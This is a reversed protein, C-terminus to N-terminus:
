YFNAEFRIGRLVHKIKEEIDDLEADNVTRVTTDYEDHDYESQHDSIKEDIMDNFEDKIESMKEDVMETITDKLEELDPTPMDAMREKFRKDVMAEIHQELAQMIIGVLNPAQFNDMFVGQTPQPAPQETTVPTATANPEIMEVKMTAGQTPQTTTAAESTFTFTM